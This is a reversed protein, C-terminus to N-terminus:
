GDSAAKTGWIVVGGGLSMTRARVNSIGAARWMALQEAMPYTAYFGSISPGLFRGVEYWPPSILRGLLPLAIRTYALWLGHWVPNSPVAFELNALAGGPRLVRALERITAAPDDVYRLLYTFTVADFAGDSFPLHEGQGLAFRIRRGFGRDRANAVGAGLMQPSQDLGVIRAGSVRRALEIAVAAPGSAVDLVTAQGCPMLGVATRVHGVMTRRWRGNQGFSLVEALADYHSPIGSFLRRAHRTRAPVETPAPAVREM